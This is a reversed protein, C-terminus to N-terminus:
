QDSTFKLLLSITSGFHSGGDKQLFRHIKRSVNEFGVVLLPRKKGCTIQLLEVGHRDGPSAEARDPSLRYRGYIHACGSVGMLKHVIVLEKGHAEIRFVQLLRQSYQAGFGAAVDILHM